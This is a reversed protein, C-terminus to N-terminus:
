GSGGRYEEFRAEGESFSAIGVLPQFKVSLLAGDENELVVIHAGDEGTPSFDILVEGSSAGSGGAVSVSRIAVGDPLVRGSLSDRQGDEGPPLLIRYIARGRSGPPDLEYLVSYLASRTIALHRALESTSAIERAASALRHKPTIRDLNPLVIALVMGIILVVALIEILTFGALPADGGDRSSSTRTTM